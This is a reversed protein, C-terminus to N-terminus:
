TRGERTKVTTNVGSIPGFESFYKELSAKNCMAIPLNAVYVGHRLKQKSFGEDSASGKGKGKGEGGGGAEGEEGASFSMDSSRAVSESDDSDEESEDGSGGGEEEVGGASAGNEHGRDEGQKSHRARKSHHEAFSRGFSALYEGNLPVM